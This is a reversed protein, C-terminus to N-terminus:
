PSFLGRNIASYPLGHRLPRGVIHTLSGVAAAEVSTSTRSFFLVALSVQGAGDGRRAAEESMRM